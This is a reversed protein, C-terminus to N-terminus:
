RGNQNMLINLGEMHIFHKVNLADLSLGNVLATAAIFLDPKDM